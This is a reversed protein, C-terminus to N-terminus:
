RFVRVLRRTNQNISRRSLGAQMYNLRVAKLALPGFEAALTRGYLDKFPQLAWRISSQETSPKGNKVYHQAVFKWYALILESVTISAAENDAGIARRGSALWESVLRDYELKSAKTGHPGLYHRHGSLEVIAQGSARHKRYKPTQFSLRPM